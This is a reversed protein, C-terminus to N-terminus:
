MKIKMKTKMELIEYRTSLAPPSPTTSWHSAKFQALSRLALSLAWFFVHFPSM